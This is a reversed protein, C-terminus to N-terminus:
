LTPQANPAVSNPKIEGPKANIDVPKKTETDKSRFAYWIFNVKANILAIGKGTSIAILDDTTYNKDGKKIQVGTVVVYGPLSNIFEEIFSLAKVDNVAQFILNGTTSIVTITSREFLEGKMTEPLTVKITQNIIAYKEALAALKTNVDDMRIGATIKRKDTLNSWLKKYKKLEVTKSELDAAEARIKSTESSIAEIKGMLADKQRFTYSTGTACMLVLVGSISFSIINKKRLTLIKM